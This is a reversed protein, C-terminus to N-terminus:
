GTHRADRSPSPVSITFSPGNPMAGGRILEDMISEQLASRSGDEAVGSPSLAIPERKLGGSRVLRNAVALLTETKEM